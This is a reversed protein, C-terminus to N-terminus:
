AELGEIESLLVDVAGLVYESPIVPDKSDLTEIRCPTRLWASYGKLTKYKRVWAQMLYAENWQSMTYAMTDALETPMRLQFRILRKALLGLGKHSLCAIRQSTTLYDRPVTVLRGFSAIHSVSREAGDRMVPLDPLAFKDFARDRNPGLNDYSPVETVPAVTLFPRVSDGNYCQCPHPLLM